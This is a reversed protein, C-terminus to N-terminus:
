SGSYSITNEIGVNLVRAYTSDGGERLDHRTCAFKASQPDNAVVHAGHLLGRLEDLVAITSPVDVGDLAGRHIVVEFTEDWAARRPLSGSKVSGSALAIVVALSQTELSTELESVLNGKDEVLVPRGALLSAAAVITQLRSQLATLTM